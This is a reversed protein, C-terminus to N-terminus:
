SGCPLGIEGRSTRSRIYDLKAEIGRFDGIGDGDSDNFSRVFIEYVVADNWWPAAAQAGTACFALLVVSLLVSKRM